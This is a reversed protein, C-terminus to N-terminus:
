SPHHENAMLRAIFQRDLLGAHLASAVLVGKGGCQEIKMVDQCDRVGGALFWEVDPRRLKLENMWELAPGRNAGVHDLSMVIVKDTWLASKHLLSKDGLLQGHRRDLSLILRHRWHEDTLLTLDELTESGIVLQLNAINKIAEIQVAQKIGTDLWFEVESFQGCLERYVEPKQQGSEIVDLDAIYIRPFDFWSCLDAVVQNLEISQTLKSQLPPYAHRNGGQAHVVKGGRVDIVPIIQLM